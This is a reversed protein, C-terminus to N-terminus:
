DRIRQTKTGQFAFLKCESAPLDLKEKIYKKYFTDQKVEPTIDESTSKSIDFADVLDQVTIYPRSTKSLYKKRPYKKRILLARLM